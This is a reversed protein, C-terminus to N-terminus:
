SNSIEDFPIEKLEGDKGYAGYLVERNLKSRISELQNFATENAKGNNDFSSCFWEGEQFGSKMLICALSISHKACAYDRSRNPWEVQKSHKCYSCDLGLSDWRALYSFPDKM